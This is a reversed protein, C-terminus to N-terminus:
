NGSAVTFDRAFIEGAGDVLTLTHRGKLPSVAMQHRGRTTGVFADDLHWYLVADANRHTAEFIVKGITGDLEVPVILTAGERPYVMDVLTTKAQICDKRYPPLPRYHNNKAKFFYEQVPPLVFWKEHVMASPEDCISTVRFKKDASLHVVHHYTCALTKVGATPVLITDAKPCHVSLRMGSQACTALQVLESNPTDFWSTSPLTSFVDFLIPAAADTGTLGPRGEGDANGVWVGVVFEPTLGVAWADRHGLSTGTKWAITRSSSFNRWGSEEGPRYVNTLAQATAWISGASLVSNTEWVEPISDGKAYYLPKIHASAYRQAGPKKFYHTLVRGMSAYMGTIDWLTGEAGGLILTLGYRGPNKGLTTMGYRQLLRHFKEFRYERLEAVAPVNLSRILAQSAPVAGDFSRNFNEPAFGGMDMPIDPVLTHPLMKGADLMAAFLFPKLISGTSRPATIVNVQDQHERGSKANGVYAVVAGTSVEAVVVAANYVHNAFLRESHRQVIESIRLQAEADLTTNIRAGERGDAMAQTLLHPTENPIAQPKGPLPENKALEYTLADIAGTNFLKKLLRNRKALLKARNRGLHILAPDNPLVALMAAQAWSLAEPNQGFYRYCAAELGVVNGGFPAQSAYFRLIEGKSYRLELRTAQLMEIAKVWVNRNRNQNALRMVQMTITSGGSVKRWAGVNQKIARGLALPDVGVHSHFRKDEFHILATVFKEPLQTTLPFRWQGDRAVTASLLKGHRDFLVTSNPTDFLPNPLCWAYWLLFTLGLLLLFFWRGKKRLYAKRKNWAQLLSNM